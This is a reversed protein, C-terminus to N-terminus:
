KTNDIIQVLLEYPTSHGHEGWQWDIHGKYDKLAEQTSQPPILDDNKGLWIELAPCFSGLALTPITSVSRFALAPNLLIAKCNIFSALHYAYYGGMSSGILLQPTFEKQLYDLTQEFLLPEQLYPMAPAYVEWGRSRMYDVKPGGAKAELGHFYALKM